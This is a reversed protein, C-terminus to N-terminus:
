TPSRTRSMERLDGLSTFAGAVAPAGVHGRVLGRRRCWASRSCSRSSWVVGVPRVALFYAQRLTEGFFRLVRGGFIGKYVRLAFAIMEGFGELPGRVFRIM